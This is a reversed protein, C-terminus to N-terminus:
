AARQSRVANADQPAIVEGEEAASLGAKASAEAPLGAKASAEAPLCTTERFAVAPQQLGLGGAAIV